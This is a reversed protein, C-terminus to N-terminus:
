YVLRGVPLPSGFMTTIGVVFPGGKEEARAADAGVVSSTGEGAHTGWGDLCVVQCVGETGSMRQHIHAEGDRRSADAGQQAAVAGALGRRHANEGGKEGGV